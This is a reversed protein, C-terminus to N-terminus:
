SARCAMAGSEADWAARFRLAVVGIVSHFTNSVLALARLESAYNRSDTHVLM